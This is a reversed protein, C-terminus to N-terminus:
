LVSGLQHFYIVTYNSLLTIEWEKTNLYLQIQGYNYSCMLGCDLIWQPGVIYVPM